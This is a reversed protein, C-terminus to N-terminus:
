AECGKSDIYITGRGWDLVIGAGDDAQAIKIGMPDVGETMLRAAIANIQRDQDTTVSM